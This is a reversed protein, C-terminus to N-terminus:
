CHVQRGCHWPLGAREAAAASFSRVQFHPSLRRANSGVAGPAAGVCGASTPCSATVPQLFRLLAHLAALGAGTVSSVPFIPITLSSRQQGPARPQAM